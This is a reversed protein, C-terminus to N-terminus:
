RRRRPSPARHRGAPSRASPRPLRRCRTSARTGAAAGWRAPIRRLSTRSRTAHRPTCPASPPPTSAVTPSWSTDGGSDGDTPWPRPRSADSRRRQRCARARPWTSVAAAGHGPAGVPRCLVRQFAHSRAGGGILLLGAGRRVTVGSAELADLGDLLGCVVGECRPAPSASRRRRRHAPGRAHRDCRTPEAHARRRPVPGAGHRRRRCPGRAGAADFRTLDVGICGRRAHRDVKTANLTCVLPLYRGTADAFGCVNGTPDTVPEDSVTFVTGSTGLSVAVDGARLGVGLAAAMNDGTRARGARRGASARGVDTPASSRPSARAGTRRTSRRDRASRHALPRREAVLLRHRVRRRPRHRTTGHAPVDALRAPAAGQRHPRLARAGQPPLWSLKTITFSPSRCRGARRPGAARRRRAAARALGRRRGVRHREVAEGPPHGPRRRDLVVMGHQQAAVAMAHVRIRGAPAAPRSRARGVM